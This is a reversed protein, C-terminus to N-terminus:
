KNKSSKSAKSRKSAEVAADVWERLQTEDEMIEEPLLWYSLTIPKNKGQYVFPHSGANEYNARNIDDAKFYLEGDFILAFFIGEKYIGLGGFMSVSTIGSIEAFLDNVVFEYFSKDKKM